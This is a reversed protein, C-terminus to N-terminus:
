AAPDTYYERAEDPLDEVPTWGQHEMTLAPLGKDACKDCFDGASGVWCSVMAAGDETEEFVPNIAYPYQVHGCVTCVAKVHFESPAELTNTM